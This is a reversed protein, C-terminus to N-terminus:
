NNNLHTPQNITSSIEPSDKGEGLDPRGGHYLYEPDEGQDEPGTRSGQGSDTESQGGRQDASGDQSSGPGIM